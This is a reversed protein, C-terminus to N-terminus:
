ANNVSSFDELPKMNASISKDEEKIEPIDYNPPKNLKNAICKKAIYIEDAALPSFLIM